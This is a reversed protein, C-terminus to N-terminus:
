LDIVVVESFGAGDFQYGHCGSRGSAVGQRVPWIGWKSTGSATRDHHGADLVLEAHQQVPIGAITDTGVVAGAAHPGVFVAPRDSKLDRIRVLVLGTLQPETFYTVDFYEGFATSTQNGGIGYVPGQGYASFAGAAPYAKINSSPTVPCRGDPQVVPVHLPKAELKALEVPDVPPSLSPSSPTEGGTRTAPQVISHPRGQQLLVTVGIAVLILGATAIAQMRWSSGRATRKREPRWPPPTGPLAQEAERYFRTLRDVVQQEPTM